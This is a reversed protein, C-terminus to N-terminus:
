LHHFYRQAVLKGMKVNILIVNKNSAISL